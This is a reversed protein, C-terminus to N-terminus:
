LSEKSRPSWNKYHKEKNKKKEDAPNDNSPLYQLQLERHTPVLRNDCLKLCHYTEDNYNNAKHFIVMAGPRM